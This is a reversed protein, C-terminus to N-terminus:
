GVLEDLLDGCVEWDRAQDRQLESGSLEEELKWRRWLIVDFCCRFTFLSRNSSINCFSAVLQAASPFADQAIAYHWRIQVVASRLRHAHPMLAPELADNHHALQRLPIIVTSYLPLPPHPRKTAMTLQNSPPIDLFARTLDVAATIGTPAPLHLTSDLQHLSDSSHIDEFPTNPKRSPASIQKSANSCTLTDLTMSPSHTDATRAQWVIKLRKLFPTPISVGLSILLLRKSWHYASISYCDLYTSQEHSVLFRRVYSLPM